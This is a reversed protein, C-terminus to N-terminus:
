LVPTTTSIKARCPRLAASPWGKVLAEGVDVIDGRQGGPKHSVGSSPIFSEATHTHYIGVLPKGSPTITKWDFKPFNPLSMANVTPSNIEFLAVFPIEVRFFSRM